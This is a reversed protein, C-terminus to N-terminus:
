APERVPASHKAILDGISGPDGRLPRFRQVCWRGGQGVGALVVGDCFLQHCCQCEGPVDGKQIEECVYVAGTVVKVGPWNVSEAGKICELKDGPGIDAM